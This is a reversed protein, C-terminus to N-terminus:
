NVNLPLASAWNDLGFGALRPGTLGPVCVDNAGSFCIVAPGEAPGAEAYGVGLVGADIQKPPAFSTHTGPKVPGLNAPKPRSLQADANGSFTFQSAVFTLAATSVLRRRNHDIENSMPREWSKPNCFLAPAPNMFWLMRANSAPSPPRQQESWM